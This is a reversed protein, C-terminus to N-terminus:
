KRANFTYGDNFRPKKNWDGYTAQYCALTAIAATEARLIRPGLSVLTVFSLTKLADLESRAFGGEPGILIGQPSLQM